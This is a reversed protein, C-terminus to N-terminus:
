RPVPGPWTEGVMEAFYPGEGQFMRDMGANMWAEQRAMGVVAVAYFLVLVAALPATLGRWGRRLGTAVPVRWIRSFGLLALSTLSPVLMSGLLAIQKLTEWHLANDDSGMIDPFISLTKEVVHQQWLILLGCLLLVSVIRLAFVGRHPKIHAALSAFGGFCLVGLLNSLLLVACATWAGLHIFSATGWVTDAGQKILKQAREDVDLEASAWRIEEPHGIRTLYDTYNQIRALARQHRETESQNNPPKVYPSGGPRSAGIYTIAIGVLCGIASRSQVRLLSGCRMVALRMRLGEEMRGQQEAKVALYTVLRAMARLEAYHPFLIAAYIATREIASREGFIESLMRMQGEPEDMYYEEWRPKESARQLAAFAESDRHQNYLGVARMMPFYANDPDLREGAAAAADFEAIEAAENPLTPIPQSPTIGEFLSPELRHLHVAGQTLYRMENAYVSPSDPFHAAVAKFHEIRQASREPEQGSVPLAAAYAIQIQLDQPHQEAVSREIEANWHLSDQLLETQMNHRVVSRTGPWILLAIAVGLTIGTLWSRYSKPPELM